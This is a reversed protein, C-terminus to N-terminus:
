RYKGNLNASFILTCKEAYEESMAPKCLKKGALARGGLDKGDALRVRCGWEM